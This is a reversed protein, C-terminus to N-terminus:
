PSIDHWLGYTCICELSGKIIPRWGLDFHAKKYEIHEVYDYTRKIFTAIEEPSSYLFELALSSEIEKFVYKNDAAVQFFMDTNHWFRLKMCYGSYSITYEIWTSNYNGRSVTRADEYSGSESLKGLVEDILREVAAIRFAPDDSVLQAHYASSVNDFTTSHFEELFTKLKEYEHRYDEGLSDVAMVVDAILVEDCDSIISDFDDIM